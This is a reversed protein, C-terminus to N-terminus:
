VHQYHYCYYYSNLILPWNHLYISSILFTFTRFMPFFLVCRYSQQFFCRRGSCKLIQSSNSSSPDFSPNMHKGCNCGSCPFATHHSGTDVIVSVRQPPRHHSTILLSSHLSIKPQYILLLCSFFLFLSM